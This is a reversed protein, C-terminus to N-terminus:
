KQEIKPTNDVTTDFLLFSSSLCRVVDMNMRDIKAIISVMVGIANLFATIMPVDFNM